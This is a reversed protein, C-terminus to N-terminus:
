SDYLLRILFNCNKIAYGMNPTQRSREEGNKWRGEEKGAKGKTAGGIYVARTILRAGVRSLAWGDFEFSKQQM